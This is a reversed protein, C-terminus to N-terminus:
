LWRRLRGHRAFSEAEHAIKAMIGVVKAPHKGITTEESLMIGTTGCEIAYAVDTVEARTPQNESRMSLMMETATVVPKGFSICRQTILRQVFPMRETPIEKGLDGRGIMIADARSIIGDMNAVAEGREIKAMVKAKGGFERIKVRAEEVDAGKGVYSVCVYEVEHRLAFELDHFDKETLCGNKHMAQASDFGHDGDAQKRLGALDAIIPVRVGVEGAAKRVTAIYRGHEEHTGWSFNLRAVSMHNEMMRRLVTLTGSAPGITAVIQVIKNRM